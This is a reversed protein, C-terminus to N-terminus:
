YARTLEVGTYYHKIIKDYKVGMKALGYAGYQCMGIGHGWGRGTFSYSIARGNADYRKNMVFLQEKLRLASRIKGGKLSFRGNTGVIELETARRSVGKQKINIDLLAGFGRVYRSLRSQVASASLNTNWFTFQSAREATTTQTTPKVELYIVEGSANTQYNVTEGGVLAVEKVQYFNDGFQRFLYVDPRVVLQRESKGIRLVLKGDVSNKTVGNQFIPLWKKKSYISYILRILRSRSMPRHPHFSQDPYLSMWGDRFLIAVNARKDKEVDNADIFSLQYNVDSESLLTDAYGEGYIMNALFNAFEVPKSLANPNTPFPKSFRVALQNMWSTLEAQNPPSNFWEDTYRPSANMVFGSVAFQSAIRVLDLKNEDDIKPIERSTKVFFPEFQRRGELSCEVGRLYPHSFDYINEVNETRGGCTSTYMANIPKGQYSAIIGRTELIAQTGMVSESSYGRYVQSRTTPLLDFGQAAFGNLNAWAYTRAAIAQAKQAELAPLSLENPVVGRLYDEMSVVNVVTLTGRQNIFVEIRGRYAKGNVRVPIARENTSGFSVAKFSAFKSVESAGSVVVERLNPDLVPQVIDTKTLLDPTSNTNTPRTLVTPTVQSNTKNKSVELAQESPQKIKTSVVEAGGFGKESLEAQLENAEEITPIKEGIKLKWGNTKADVEVSVKKESTRIEAAAQEAETQTEFGGLELQYVEVEPPRYARALVSIKNVALFKQPEEPSVATLQTDGTSISVSRADTSLGIRVTPEQALPFAAASISFVILLFVLTSVTRSVFVGCTM